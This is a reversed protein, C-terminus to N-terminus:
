AAVERKVILRHGTEFDRALLGLMAMAPVAPEPLTQPNEGPYAAARMGTRTGGPDVIAVRVNSVNQVEEAYSQALAELGAKSAAYPGWYARPQVAANSSILILRGATSARLLGDFARILRYNATLNVDIVRGWTAPDIHALPSLTGLQGANAILIDLRGWRGAIAAALKEITGAEALDLPAITATGGREHIRAEVEELAGSTRATLVVHAGAEALAQATAAGIGRSAGTVLAVRGELIKAPSRAGPRSQDTM